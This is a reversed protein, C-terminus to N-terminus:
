IAYPTTYLPCWSTVSQMHDIDYSFTKITTSPTLIIGAYYMDSFYNYTTM